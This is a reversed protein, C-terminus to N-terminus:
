GGPASERAPAAGAAAGAAPPAGLPAVSGWRGWWRGVEPQLRVQSKLPYAAPRQGEALVHLPEAEGPVKLYLDAGGLNRQSPAVERVLMVEAQQPAQPQRGTRNLHNLLLAAAVLLWLVLWGRQVWPVVRPWGHRRISTRLGFYLAAILAGLVVLTFVFPRSAAWMAEGPTSVQVAAGLAQLSATAEDTRERLAARLLLAGVPPLVTWMLARWPVAPAPTNTM